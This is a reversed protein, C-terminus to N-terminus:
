GLALEAMVSVNVANEDDFQFRFGLKAGYDKRILLLGLGSAHRDVKGRELREVYLDDLNRAFLERCVDMFPACRNQPVSNTALILVRDGARRLTLTVPLSNNATFKVANEVLENVVTSILGFQEEAPFNHRFYDATFDSLISGRNWNDFMDLPLFTITFSTEVGKEFEIRDGINVSGRFTGDWGRDTTKKVVVVSIDDYRRTAGLHAQCADVIATEIAEASSGRVPLAAEIIGQLTFQRGEANM